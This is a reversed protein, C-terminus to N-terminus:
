AHERGLAVGDKKVPCKMHFNGAQAGQAAGVQPAAVRRDLRQHVAFLGLAPEFGVELCPQARTEGVYARQPRHPMAVADAQSAREFGRRQRQLRM